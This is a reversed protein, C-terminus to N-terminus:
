ESHVKLETHTFYLLDRAKVIGGVCSHPFAKNLEQENTVRLVGVSRAGSRPRVILPFDCERLLAAIDSPLASEILPFGNSALFLFHQDGGRDARGLEKQAAGADYRSSLRFSTQYVYRRSSGVRTCRTLLPRPGALSM